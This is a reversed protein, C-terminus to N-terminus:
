IFRSQDSNSKRFRWGSIESWSEQMHSTMGRPIRCALVATVRWWSQCTCFPSHCSLRPKAFPDMWVSFSFCQKEDIQVPMSILPFINLSSCQSAQTVAAQHEHPSLWIIGVHQAHLFLETTNQMKGLNDHCFLRVMKEWHVPKLCVSGIQALFYTWGRGSWLVETYNIRFYQYQEPKTCLGTTWTERPKFSVEPVYRELSGITVTFIFSFM